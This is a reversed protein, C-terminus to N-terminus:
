SPSNYIDLISTRRILIQFRNNSKEPFCLSLHGWGHAAAICPTIYGSVSSIQKLRLILQELIPLTSVTAIIIM